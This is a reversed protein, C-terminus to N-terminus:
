PRLDERRVMNRAVKTEDIGFLTYEAIVYDGEKFNRKFNQWLTTSCRLRTTGIVVEFGQNNFRRIPGEVEPM